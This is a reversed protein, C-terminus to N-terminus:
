FKVFHMDPGRSEFLVVGESAVCAHDVWNWGDGAKRAKSNYPEPRTTVAQAESIEQGAIIDQLPTHSVLGTKYVVVLKDTTCRVIATSRPLEVQHKQTGKKTDLFTVIPV